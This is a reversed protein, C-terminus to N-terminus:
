KAVSKKVYGRKDVNSYYLFYIFVHSYIRACNTYNIFVTKADFNNSSKTMSYLILKAKLEYAQSMFVDGFFGLLFASMDLSPSNSFNANLFSICGAAKLWHILQDELKSENGDKGDSFVSALQTYLAAINFLIAAKEFQISKQTSEVGNICDFWTFYVHACQSYQFFRKEILCLSNFYEFLRHLGDSGPEFSLRITSERFYNFQRIQESYTNVTETYHSRIFNKFGNSFDLTNLTEKLNLYIMVDSSSSSKVESEADFVLSHRPTKEVVLGMVNENEYDPTTLTIEPLPTFQKLYIPQKTSASLAIVSSYPLNSYNSSGPSNSSYSFNTNSSASSTTSSTISNNVSDKPLKFSPARLGVSDNEYDHNRHYQNRGSSYTSSTKMKSITWNCNLEALQDKLYKINSDVFKLELKLREQTQENYCVSSDFNNFILTFFVILM